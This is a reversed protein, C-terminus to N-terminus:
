TKRTKHEFMGASGLIPTYGAQQLRECLQNYALIAAQKLDYMGKNIQCFIYDKHFLLLLNYKQIIDDPIYRRHIKMFEPFQM